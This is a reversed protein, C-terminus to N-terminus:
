NRGLKLGHSHQLNFNEGYDVKSTCYTRLKEESIQHLKPVTKRVNGDIGVIKISGNTFGCAVLPKSPSWSAENIFNSLQM